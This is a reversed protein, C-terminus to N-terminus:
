NGGCDFILLSGNDLVEASLELLYRFYKKDQTDESCHHLFDFDIECLIILNDRQITVIVAILVLIAISLM